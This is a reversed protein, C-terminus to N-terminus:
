DLNFIRADAQTQKRVEAQEQLATRGLPNGSLHIGRKRCYDRNARTRYIQDAHVLAPYHGFRKRFQEVQEPLDTCENFNDWSLHVQFVNGDVCSASVKAGLEVPTGAKGRVIPRVHPQSLSVIRDEIRHQRQQYMWQQQRLVENIVLLKRYLQQGIQSLSAGAAIWGDIHALNRKVYGLQKGIAQRITKRSAKRQKAVRLYEQRAQQRYTRPKKEVQGQVQAYLDDIIAETQERAQNLLNLDTPYRIDALACSADIILQRHAPLPPMTM